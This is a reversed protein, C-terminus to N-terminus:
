LSQSIDVLAGIMPVVRLLAAGAVQPFAASNTRLGVNARRAEPKRGVRIWGVDFPSSPRFLRAVSGLECDTAFGVNLGAYLAPLRNGVHQLM